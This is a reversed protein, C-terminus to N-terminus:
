NAPYQMLTYFCDAQINQTIAEVQFKIDTEADFSFLLNDLTITGQDLYVRFADIYSDSDAVSNVRFELEGEDGKKASAHIDTLVVRKGKPVAYHTSCSYGEHTAIIDQVSNTVQAEATIVGANGLGGTASTLMFNVRLFLNTTAVPTTGNLDVREFVENWDGDVGFILVYNAGATTLLTDNASTSVIEMIEASVLDVRVDTPGCWIDVTDGASVGSIKGFKGFVSAGAVNGRALELKYDLVARPFNFGAKSM